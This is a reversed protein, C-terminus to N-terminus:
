KKVGLFVNVGKPQPNGSIRRWSTIQGVHTLADAIPGNIINWFSSKNLSLENKLQKDILESDTSLKLNSSLEKILILTFKRTGESSKDNQILQSNLGLIRNTMTVLDYIHNILESITMSSDIPKFDLNKPSLGETAWRYRFGLGDVLRAISNTTTIERPPEPINYYPLETM